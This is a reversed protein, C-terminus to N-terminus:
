TSDRGLARQQATLIATVMAEFSIEARWGTQRLVSSTLEFPLTGHVALWRFRHLNPRLLHRYM